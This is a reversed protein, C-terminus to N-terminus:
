HMAAPGDTEAAKSILRGNERLKGLERCVSEFRIGTIFSMDRLTPLVVGADDASKDLLQLLKLVREQASGHRLSMLDSSRRQQALLNRMVEESGWMSGAQNTWAMLRSPILARANVTTGCAELGDLGILDGPLALGAFRPVDGEHDELMVAGSLVKWPHVSQGAQFIRAKAKFHVCPPRVVARAGASLSIAHIDMVDVWKIDLWALVDIASAGSL